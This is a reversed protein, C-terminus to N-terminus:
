RRSFFWFFFSLALSLLISTALPFHISFGPREIHIDGPLRGLMNLFPLKDAYVFFLGVIVLITGALIFLKGISSSEM